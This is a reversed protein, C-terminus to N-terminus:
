IEIVQFEIVAVGWAESLVGTAGGHQEVILITFATWVKIQRKLNQLLLPRLKSRAM